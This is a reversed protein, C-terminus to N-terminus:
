SGSDPVGSKADKINPVKQSPNETSESFKGKSIGDGDGGLFAGAEKVGPLKEASRVASMLGDLTGGTLSSLRDGITSGIEGPTKGENFWKIIYYGGIGWIALFTAAFTTIFITPLVVFLAVLVMFVTFLVAGLLGIVLGTLLAVLFVTVTFLIFLLLPPGTLVINTLLFATIKPNDAAFKKIQKWWRARQHPPFVRNLMMRAKVLAVNMAGLGQFDPTFQDSRDATSDSEAVM